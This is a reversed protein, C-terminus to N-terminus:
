DNRIALLDAIDVTLEDSDAPWDIWRGSSVGDLRPFYVRQPPGGRITVTVRDDPGSGGHGFSLDTDEIREGDRLVEVDYAYAFPIGSVPSEGRRLTLKRAPNVEIVLANDGSVLLETRKEGYGGFYLLVRLEGGAPVFAEITNAKVKSVQAVPFAVLESPVFSPESLWSWRTYQANLPEGDSASVIRFEFRERPALQFERRTPGSVETELPLLLDGLAVLYRGPQVDDWNAAYAGDVFRLPAHLEFIPESFSSWTGTEDLAFLRVDEVDCVAGPQLAFRVTLQNLAVTRRVVLEKREGAQLEVLSSYIPMVMGPARVVVACPGTPLPSIELEAAQWDRQEVVRNEDHSAKSHLKVSVTPDYAGDPDILVISSAAELRAVHGLIYRREWRFPLWAYGEAGLWYTERPAALLILEGDASREIDVLDGRPTGISDGKWPTQDRRVQVDAVRLGSTADVVEVLWGAALEARVEWADRFEPLAQGSALKLRGFESEVERFFVGYGGISDWAVQASGHEIAATRRDNGDLANPVLYHLTAPQTLDVAAGDQEILVRVVCVVNARQEATEADIATSAALEANSANQVLTEDQASVVVQPVEDSTARNSYWVIALLACALLLAFARGRLRLSPRDSPM